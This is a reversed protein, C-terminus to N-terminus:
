IREVCIADAPVDFHDRRVVDVTEVCATVQHEPLVDRRLFSMMNECTNHSMVVEIRVQPSSTM